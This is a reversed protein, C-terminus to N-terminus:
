QSVLMAGLVHLVWCGSPDVQVVLRCHWDFRHLKAPPVPVQM